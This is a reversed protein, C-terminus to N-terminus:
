LACKPCFNKPNNSVDGEDSYECKESSWGNSIAFEIFNNLRQDYIGDLVIPVELFTNCSDCVLVERIRLGIFNNTRNNM